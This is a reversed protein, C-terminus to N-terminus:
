PQHLEKKLEAIEAELEKEHQRNKKIFHRIIFILAAIFILIYIILAVPIVTFYILAEVTKGQTGYAAQLHAQYRGFLWKTSITNQYSRETEPFINQEELPLHTLVDGFMNTITILGKPRIHVPSQNLITTKIDLPGHQSFKPIHFQTILAQEQYDGPITIYILAAVRPAIAAGSSTEQNNTLTPPTLGQGIAEFIIAAYHGGPLANKSANIKFQIEVKDNAPITLRSYPLKIWQSASYNSSFNQDEIFEPTGQDDKIIFDVAKLTGSTPSDSTNILKLIGTSTEGPKMEMQQRAPAITLPQSIAALAPSTSFLFLILFLILQLRSFTLKLKKSNPLTNKM